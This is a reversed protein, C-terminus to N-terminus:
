FIKGPVINSMIARLAGDSGVRKYTGDAEKIVQVCNEPRNGWQTCHLGDETIRWKGKTEGGNENLSLGTGDAMFYNMFKANKPVFQKVEVTNGVLLQKIEEGSLQQAVSPAAVGILSAALLPAVFNKKM